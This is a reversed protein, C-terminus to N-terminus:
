RGSHPASADGVSSSAHAGRAASLPNVNSFGSTAAAAAPSSGPDHLASRGSSPQAALLMESSSARQMPGGPSPASSSGLAPSAPVELRRTSQALVKLKAGTMHGLDPSDASAGVSGYLEPCAAVRQPLFYPHVRLMAPDLEVCQTYTRGATEDLLDAEKEFFDSGFVAKMYVRHVAQFPALVRENFCCLWGTCPLIPGSGAWCDLGRYLKWSFYGSLAWVVNVVVIFLMVLSVESSFWAAMMTAWCMVANILIAFMLSLELSRALEPGTRQLRFM